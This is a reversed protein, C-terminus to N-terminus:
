ITKLAKQIFNGILPVPKMIGSAATFMGYMWLVSVAVYMSATIWWQDFPSVLLGLSIFLISLGASQRIHFAAFQNKADGNMSMAIVVGVILIYSTLAITKNPEQTKDM